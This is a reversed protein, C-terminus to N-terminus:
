FPQLYTHQVISAEFKTNSPVNLSKTLLHTRTAHHRARECSAESKWGMSVPVYGLYWIM